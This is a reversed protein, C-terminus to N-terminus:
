EDLGKLIEAARKMVHWEERTFGSDSSYGDDEDDLQQSAAAECLAIGNALGEFGSFDNLCEIIGDQPITCGPFIEPLKERVKKPIEVGHYGDHASGDINLAFLENGKKLVHIHKQTTPPMANDIRYNYQGISGYKNELLASKVPEETFVVCICESSLITIKKM